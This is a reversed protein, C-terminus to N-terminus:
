DFGCIKIENNLGKYRHSSNTVYQWFKSKLILLSWWFFKRHTDRSHTPLRFSGIKVIHRFVVLFLIYEPLLPNFPRYAHNCIQQAFESIKRSKAIPQYKISLDNWIRRLDFLIWLRNIIFEFIIKDAYFNSHLLCLIDITKLTM